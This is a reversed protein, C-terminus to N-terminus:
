DFAGDASRQGELVDCGDAAAADVVTMVNAATAALEEDLEIAGCSDCHEFGFDITEGLDRRRAGDAHRHRKTEVAVLVIRPDHHFPKRQRGVTQAPLTSRAEALMQCCHVCDVGIAEAPRAVVGDARRLLAIVLLLAPHVEPALMPQTRLKCEGLPITISSSQLDDSLM